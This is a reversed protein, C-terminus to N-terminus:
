HAMWKTHVAYNNCPYFCNIKTELYELHDLDVKLSCMKWKFLRDSFQFPDLLLGSGELGPEIRGNGKIETETPRGFVFV